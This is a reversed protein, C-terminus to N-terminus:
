IRVVNMVMLRSRRKENMECSNEKFRWKKLWSHSNAGLDFLPRALLADTRVLCHSFYLGSKM